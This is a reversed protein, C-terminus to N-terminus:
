LARDRRRRLGRPYATALWVTAPRLRRTTAGLSSVVWPLALLPGVLPVLSVLSAAIANWTLAGLWPLRKTRGRFHRSPPTEFPPNQIPM